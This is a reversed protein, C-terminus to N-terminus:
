RALSRFLELYQMLHQSGLFQRRVAERAAEGMAAARAPEELLRGVAGAFGALDSPEVLLGTVGDEIQEQIGGVRSAVVPRAKWMAEAVTLGFGEALSKQVVVSAHRQLANVVTANEEADDMPISALHVKRRAAAPTAERAAVVAQYVAAAEPDDAIRGEGPGALLLHADTRGALHETFAGLVGLPDKLADWRSVQLVVRESDSLPAEEVLALPAAVRGPSGDLRSFTPPEAPRGPLLRCAQLIAQVRAPALEVNKPAFADISPQIVVVRPLRVEPWVFAERSFVVVDAAQVYPLLFRTALAVNEDPQDVGVHCRWVVPAGASKLAPVLGATQPDHLIVFDHEGLRARLAKGAAALASEYVAREADGLPGGDGESRHLRNHIRKTIRFFEPDGKLVLWRADVGAGRAYALLSQLMEAVGGGRATSNVNWVVRGALEERAAAAARMFEELDAPPLVERFREPSARGVPVAELESM